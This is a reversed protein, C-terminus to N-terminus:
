RPGHKHVAPMAADSAILGEARLDSWFGPANGHETGHLGGSSCRPVERNYNNRTATAAIAKAKRRRMNPM